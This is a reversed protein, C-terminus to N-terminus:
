ERLVIGADKDSRFGAFSPHRLRNGPTWDLFEIRAVFFPNLWRCALMRRGSAGRNYTGCKSLLLYRRESEAVLAACEPRVATWARFRGLKLEYHWERGEPPLERGRLADARIHIVQSLDNHVSSDNFQVCPM